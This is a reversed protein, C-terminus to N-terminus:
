TPVKWQPTAAAEYIRQIEVARFLLFNTNNLKFIMGLVKCHIGWFTLIRVPYKIAIEYKCFLAAFRVEDILKAVSKKTKNKTRM